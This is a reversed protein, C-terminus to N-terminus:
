LTEGSSLEAAWRLEAAALTEPSWHHQEGELAVSHLTVQRVRRTEDPSGPPWILTSHYAELASGAAAHLDSVDVVQGKELYVRAWGAESLLLTLWVEKVTDDERREDELLVTLYARGFPDRGCYLVPRDFYELVKQGPLEGTFVPHPLSTNV